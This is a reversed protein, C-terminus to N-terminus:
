MTIPAEKTYSAKLKRLFVKFAPKKTYYGYEKILARYRVLQSILSRAQYIDIGAYDCLDRPGLQQHELLGDVLDPLFEGTSELTEKVGAPNHLTNRGKEIESLQYYGCSQKSYIQRLFNYAFKAHTIKVILRVGDTTSFMRAAVACALRALKFRVDEGQILPIKSTFNKSLAQSAKMIFSVVEKNIVVQDATRSWAWMLLDHCLASTYKLPGSPKHIKNIERSDVENQVLVLAFDFRAIDEAAGILEPVADVGYNYYAMQRIKQDHPTRPNALWILRTRSTTQESIIKTVEAIGESRIRSMKSIDTKSLNGAEDLVILRRDALPIKGWILTWREGLRQLGGILGACTVNEGSVIEGAQYHTCLGETVQGKGVRTDGLILVDSWGRKVKVNDFEFSTVSHFALDVATHLDPRKYIHTVHEALQKHIDAFKSRVNKTQFTRKLEKSQPKALVFTDVNTQAPVAKTLIHTAAQTRPDPVTYGECEYVQNTQIGHGVYYCHRMTYPGIEHKSSDQVAPIVFLEEINFTSLVKLDSAYKTPVNLLLCVFAKQMKASCQILSLIASSWCDFTHVISQPAGAEDVTTVRVEKPPLYPSIGKGAVLCRFRIKEYYYDSKSADHLTVLISQQDESPESTKSPVAQESAKKAPLKFVNAAKILRRLQATTRNEKVFYDTIDGGKYSKPLPLKVVKVSKAVAKLLRAREWAVQQGLDHKDNVDYIIVVHCKRFYETFIARWSMVGSTVTIANFGNQHLLICDLEGECLIIPKSKDVFQLPYLTVIGYGKSFSIMKPEGSKPKPLYRRVNMLSGDKDCVPFTIRREDCGINFKAITGGSLGRDVRLVKQYLNNAKLRKKYRHVAQWTLPEANPNSLTNEAAAYSIKRKAAYFAYANGKAGCSKCNFIGKRNVSCSKTKSTIANEHFPCFVNVDDNRKFSVGFAAEAIKVAIRRM